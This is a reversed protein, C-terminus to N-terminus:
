RRLRLAPPEDCTVTRTAIWRQPLEEHLAAFRHQPLFRLSICAALPSWCECSAALVYSCAYAFHSPSPSGFARRSSSPICAWMRWAHSRVGAFGFATVQAQMQFAQMQHNVVVARVGVWIHLSPQTAREVEAGTGGCDGKRVTTDSDMIPGCHTHASTIRGNLAALTM